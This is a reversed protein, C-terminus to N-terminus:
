RQSQSPPVDEMTLIAYTKAAPEATIACEDNKSEQNPKIPTRVPTVLRRQLLFKM